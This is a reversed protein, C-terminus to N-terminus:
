ATAFVSAATQQVWREAHEVRGKDAYARLRDLYKDWYDPDMSPVPHPVQLWLEVTNVLTEAGGFAWTQEPTLPSRAQAELFGLLGYFRLDGSVLEPPQGEVVQRYLPIPSGDRELADLRAQLVSELTAHYQQGDPPPMGGLDGQQAEPGGAAAGPPADDTDNTLCYELCTLGRGDVDEMSEVSTLRQCQYCIDVGVYAVGHWESGRRTQKRQPLTPHLERALAILSPRTRGECYRGQWGGAAKVALDVVDDVRVIDSLSDTVKMHNLLWEGVKGISDTYRARTFREVSPTDAPPRATKVAYGVILAVLAQRAEPDAALRAMFELDEETSGDKFKQPVHVLRWRARLGSDDMPILGSQKENLLFFLTSMFTRGPQRKEGVDRLTKGTSGWGKLLQADLTKVEDTIEECFLIRARDAGVLQGDHSQAGSSFRSRVFANSHAQMGYGGQLVDGLSAYVLAFLTSKQGRTPGVFGYLRRASEGKLAYGLAQFIYERDAPPLHTMLGDVEPHTAYPDYPDPISRTVFRGRAEALPLLKGTTLDIVGNPAGLSLRDADVDLSKCVTLTTPLMGMARYHEFAPGLMKLMDRFGVPQAARVAWATCASAEKETLNGGAALRAITAQWALAAELNHRGVKATDMMGDWRGGDTEVLVGWEEGAAGQVVCLRDPVHNFLRGVDAVSTKGFRGASEPDVRQAQAETRLNEVKPLDEVKARAYHKKLADAMEQATSFGGDSLWDDLGQGGPLALVKVDTAGKGMLWNKLRVIAANVQPNTAVDGDPALIFRNGRIGVDEWDPLTGHTSRWGWVGALGIAPIGFAALADVRTVGETVFIAQEKDALASRTLPSTILTNKQSGPSLFKRLRGKTDPFDSPSALRLQFADPNAVGHLPMLLGSSRQPFGYAAAYEGDLPKGSRVVRYGRARAVDPTVGRTALYETWEQPLGYDTGLTSMQHGANDDNDIDRLSKLM